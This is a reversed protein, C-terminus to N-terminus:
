GGADPTDSVHMEHADAVAVNAEPATMTALYM